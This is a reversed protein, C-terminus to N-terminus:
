SRPPHRPFERTQDTPAWPDVGPPPPGQPDRITPMVSTPAPPRVPRTHRGARPVTPYAGTAAEEAPRRFLLWLIGGGIALLVAGLIYLITPIGGSGSSLLPEDTQAPGAGTAQALDSTTDTPSASTPPPTTTVPGSGGRISITRSASGLQDNGNYADVTVTADGSPSAADFKLTFKTTRSNGDSRQGSLRFPLRDEFRVTGDSEQTRTLTSLGDHNATLTVQNANLGPLQILIVRRVTLIAQNTTNSTGVSLSTSQGANIRSTLGITVKVDGDQAAAPAALALVAGAAMAGVAVLKTRM